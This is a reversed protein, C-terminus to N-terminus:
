SRPPDLLPLLHEDGAYLTPPIQPLLHSAQSITLGVTSSLCDSPPIQLRTTAPHNDPAPAKRCSPGQCPPTSTPVPIAPIQHAQILDPPPSSGRPWSHVGDGCGAHVSPAVAGVVLMAIISTLFWRASPLHTCM